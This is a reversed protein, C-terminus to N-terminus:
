GGGVRVVWTNTSSKENWGEFIVMEAPVQISNTTIPFADVWLSVHSPSNSPTENSPSRFLYQWVKQFRPSKTTLFSIKLKMDQATRTVGGSGGLSETVADIDVEFEDVRCDIFRRAENGKTDFRGVDERREVTGGGSTPDWPRDDGEGTFAATIGDFFSPVAVFEEWPFVACM